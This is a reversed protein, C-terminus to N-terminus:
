AFSFPSPWRPILFSPDKTSVVFMRNYENKVAMLIRKIIWTRQRHNTLFRCRSQAGQRNINPRCAQVVLLFLRVTAVTGCWRVVLLSVCYKAFLGFMAGRLSNGSNGHVGGAPAGFHELPWSVFGLRLLWRRKGEWAEIKRTTSLKRDTCNIAFTWLIKGSSFTQKFMISCGFFVDGFLTFCPLVLHLRCWCSWFLCPGLGKQSLSRLKWLSRFQLKRLMSAGFHWM